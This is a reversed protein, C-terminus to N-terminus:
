LVTNYLIFKFKTQFQRRRHYLHYRLVKKPFYFSNEMPFFLTSVEDSKGLSLPIRVVQWAYL